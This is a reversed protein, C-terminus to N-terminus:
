LDTGTRMRLTAHRGFGPAQLLCCHGLSRFATMGCAVGPSRGHDFDAHELLARCCRWFSRCFPRAGPAASITTEGTPLAPAAETQGTAGTQRLIQSDSLIAGGGLRGALFSRRNKCAWHDAQNKVTLPLWQGTCPCVKVSDYSFPDRYISKPACAVARKPQFRFFRPLTHTVSSPWIMGDVPRKVTHLCGSGLGLLNCSHLYGRSLDPASGRSPPMAWRHLRIQPRQRDSGM